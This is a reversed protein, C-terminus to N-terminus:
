ENYYQKQALREEFEKVPLPKDYYYGQALECNNERLIEVQEKTEVGEVICELGLQGAMAVVSRFMISRTSSEDDEEVPLFSKDIKVVDWPIDRILNLSSFGVGFDDVSTRIGVDHLATVLRKLDQFEVDTTTETLEVEIYEHPVEYRDVIEIIMNALEVNIVNKRSFNVSVRVVERGEEIWRRLDRCVFELMYLDLRCIDNTEELMPIFDNPRIMSGAHFWRCLAEAGELKKTFVNVKPQYFPKFEMAKLAEPFLQQVRMSKEKKSITADDYFVITEKGGGRAINYANVIRGFVDGPNQMVYDETIRFVGASSQINVYSGEGVSIKTGSLYKIVKETNEKECVCVFNDGGLRAVFGDKGALEQLGEYHTKMVVDGVEKGFERNILAFHRLNYRFATKEYIKGMRLTRMLYANMSRLNPYGSEDYYALERVVDQLRNRSVFSLTTRMILEVKWKEEETLPEEEPSMYVTMTAISMISTVVRIRSVEYGEKGTDFCCLTEGRGEEEEQPNRYIRTVGKSLRFMSAIEILLEEIKTVDINGINTMSYILQEFLVFFRMSFETSLEKPVPSANTEMFLKSYRKNAYMLDDAREFVDQVRMDREPIFDSMGYALTVEGKSKNEAQRAGLESILRQRNEQDSGRLIVVFEDGGIRFVPSHKFTNCIIKCANKIFEDGASHGQQDNVQKLGNIDCVVISFEGCVEENIEEDLQMEAQAYAHKNKVSTLADKNAMDMASGIAKEFELEKRKAEDINEVAVILFNPDNKTHVAFLSVYQPRGDLMLRYNIILKGNAALTKLLNEKKMAASMMPLDEPYIDKEMNRQTDTFFDAGVCGVQLRAYKESASYESYEDTIVNVRYIVEYRTSLALSLEGFVKSEELISQERRIQADVNIVGMVIHNEDNKPRVVIMSVYQSRDGLMQRYTLTLSGSEMLHHLLREKDLEFLLRQIDDPHIYKKVDIISDQFFDRGLKTTGLRSYEDSSSYQTYSNDAVNIYYIAEYRSALAGAIHRYTIREMNANLERKRQEDVNQVGIIVKQDTGRITKLFYHLVEGNIVLRYNLSFSKGNKLVEVVKEKKFSDLFFAQDEPYVQERCNRIVDQYFNEGVARKVLEKKDGTALYEVYSDDESDIVYLSDYDNALALAIEGFTIPTKNENTM